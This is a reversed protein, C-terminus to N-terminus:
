GLIAGVFCLFIDGPVVLVFGYLLLSMIGIPNNLYLHSILYYYVLGFLYVIFLGIFNAVLLHKLNPLRHQHALYGTVYAGAM